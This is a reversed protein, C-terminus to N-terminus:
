YDTDGFEIKLDDKRVQLVHWEKIEAKFGKSLLLKQIETYFKEPYSLDIDNIALQSNKTYLFVTLSGDLIPKIKLEECADLVEVLFNILRVVKDKNRPYTDIYIM